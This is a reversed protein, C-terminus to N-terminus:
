IPTCVFIGDSISINENYNRWTFPTICPDGVLDGNKGGSAISYSSPLPEQTDPTFYWIDKNWKDKIHLAGIAYPVLNSYIDKALSTGPESPVVGVETMYAGIAVAWSRLEAMTSRQKARDAADLLNPILIAALIAIVAIVILLEILSFGRVGRERIMRGVKM